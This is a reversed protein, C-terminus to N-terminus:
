FSTLVGLLPLMVSLLIAGVLACMVAVLIPEIWAVLTAMSSETSLAIGQGIREFAEANSGTRFGIAVLLRSEQPLLGSQALAKQFSEGADLGQGLRGLRERVRSDEVLGHALGLAAQPSLGSGLMAAMGLMLRQLSLDFSLRGTVPNHEFLWAFLRRGVALRSLTFAGAALAIIGASLGLAAGRLWAGVRLLSQAVGGLEFGFQSLIQDFVPMAQTLLAVVVILIMVTMALPYILSSRVAQALRDRQDYFSALSQCAESMGGTEEAVKLLALAYQPLGGVLSFAESLRRGDALPQALADLLRREAPGAAESLVDVGESLAMGSDYVMALSAFLRSLQEPPLERLRPSPEPM